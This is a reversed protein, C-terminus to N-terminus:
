IEHRKLLEECLADYDSAGNSKASYRFIDKGSSPAEALAVNDRIKTKFIIDQFYREVAEAIDRNLVKRTDFQTLFVGGIKLSPNLRRQVKDIVSTLKTIGQLSLYQAQLPILIEQSATLANTTLLGLSPACDIFVYDYKGLLNSISEKLIVERGAESSFEIEAGALDLTAPIIDLNETITYIAQSPSASGTLIQYIGQEVDKVDLSLSLNSQPDLDILLVRKGKRSLGAGINCTSCTKGVGGKHNSICIVKAKNHIISM